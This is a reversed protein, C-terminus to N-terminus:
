LSGGETEARQRLALFANLGSSDMFTLATLDLVLTRGDLHLANIVQTFYPCTDMDITGALTVITRKPHARVAIDLPQM